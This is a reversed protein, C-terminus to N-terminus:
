IPFQFLKPKSVEIIGMQMLVLFTEEQALLEFVLYKDFLQLYPPIDILIHGNILQLLKQLFFIPDTLLLESLKEVCQLFSVIMFHSTEEPKESRLRTSYPSASM